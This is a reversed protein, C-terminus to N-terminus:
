NYYIYLVRVICNLQLYYSIYILIGIVLSALIHVTIQELTLSTTKSLIGYLYEKM